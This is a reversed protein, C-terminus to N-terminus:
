TSPHMRCTPPFIRTRREPTPTSSFPFSPYPKGLENVQKNKKVFKSLGNAGPFNGFYGDFPHNEEYIVIIHGIKSLRNAALAPGATFTLALAGLTTGALLKGMWSTMRM